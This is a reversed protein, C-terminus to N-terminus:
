RTRVTSSTENREKAEDAGRRHRRPHLGSRRSGKGDKEEGKRRRGDARPRAHRRTRRSEIREEENSTRGRGRRRLEPAASPIRGQRTNWWGRRRSKTEEMGVDPDAMQHSSWTRDGDLNWTWGSKTRRHVRGGAGEKSLSSSLSGSGLRFSPGDPNSGSRWGREFPPPPRTAGKGGKTGKSSRPSRRDKPRPVTWRPVGGWLWVCVCVCVPHDLSLSQPLPLSPSMSLPLPLPQSQSLSLLLPHCQSLSLSLNVNLSPSSLSLLLPHCQSLSPSFSLSLSLLLPHCQSASPSPPQSLSLSYTLLPLVCPQVFCDPVIAIAAEQLRIARTAPIILLWPLSIAGRAFSATRFSCTLAVFFRPVFPPPPSLFRLRLFFSRFSFPVRGCAFTPAAVGPFPPSCTRHFSGCAIALIGPPPCVVSRSSVLRGLRPIHVAVLVRPKSRRALQTPTFRPRSPPFSPGSTSVHAHTRGPYLCPLEM